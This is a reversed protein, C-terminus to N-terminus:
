LDVEHFPGRSCRRAQAKAGSLPMTGVTRIRGSACRGSPSPRLALLLCSSVFSAGNPSSPRTSGLTSRAPGQSSGTQGLWYRPCCSARTVAEDSCAGETSAVPCSRVARRGCDQQLIRCQDGPLGREDGQVDGPYRHRATAPDVRAAVVLTVNDLLHNTLQDRSVYRFGSIKCPVQGFGMNRSRFDVGISPQTHRSGDLCPLNLRSRLASFRFPLHMGLVSLDPM